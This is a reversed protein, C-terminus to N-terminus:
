GVLAALEDLARGDGHVVYGNQAAYHVVRAGTAHVRELWSPKVPGVFQVLALGQARGRRPTGKAALSRRRAPDVDREGLRVERMDDRRDAGAQRLREADDGAAEVLTFSEFRAIARADSRELASKGAPTHPVVLLHRGGDARPRQAGAVATGAILAGALLVAATRVLM